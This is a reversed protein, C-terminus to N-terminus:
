SKRNNCEVYREMRSKVSKLEIKSLTRWEGPNLKGITIGAFSVRELRTVEHGLMAFFKKVEHYRGESFEIEYIEGTRSRGVLELEGPIARRGDIIVGRSAVEKEEETLKGSIEVRYKRPVGYKPHLLKQTTQGDDTFLLVGTTDIDLRGVPFLRGFKDPLIEMVTPRGNEDARSTIYGRPKNMLIWTYDRDIAIKEGDLSVSVNKSVRRAPETVMEGNVTVRGDIVARDAKRRSLGTARAVFVNLRLESNRNNTSNSNNRTKKM